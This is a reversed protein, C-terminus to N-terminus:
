HLTRGQCRPDVPVLPHRPARWSLMTQEVHWGHVRIDIAPPQGPPRCLTKSVLRDNPIFRLVGGGDLVTTTTDDVSVVEGIVIRSPGPDEPTDDVELALTPLVPARLFIVSVLAAALVAGGLATGHALPRAAREPVPGVLLLTCVPPLALMLVLLVEDQTFADWIAPALWAYVAAAVLLPLLVCAAWVARGAGRRAKVELGFVVLLLMLLAPLFRLQWIMAALLGLVLVVWDPIRRSARVLWSGGDRPASVRLLAGLARCGLVVVPVSWMLTVLLTSVLGLPSVNQVLVLMTQPDQGSLYWVRMILLLLPFAPLLTLLWQQGGEAEGNGAM